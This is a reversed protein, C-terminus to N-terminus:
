PKQYSYGKHEGNSEDFSSKQVSGGFSDEAGSGFSSEHGASLVEGGTDDASSSEPTFVPGADKDVSDDTGASFSSTDGDGTESSFDLDASDQKPTTASGIGLLSHLGSSGGNKSGFLSLLGGIGGLSIGGSGGAPQASSKSGFLSHLGGSSKGSGSLSGSFMKLHNQAREFHRNVGAQMQTLILM